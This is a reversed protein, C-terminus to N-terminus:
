LHICVLLKEAIWRGKGKRSIMQVPRDPKSQIIRGSSFIGDIEEVGIEPFGIVQEIECNGRLM